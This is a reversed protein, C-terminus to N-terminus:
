LQPFCLCAKLRNKKERFTSFFNLNFAHTELGTFIIFITGNTPNQSWFFFGGGGWTWTHIRLCPTLSKDQAIRFITGPDFYYLSVFLARGIHKFFYYKLTKFTKKISFNYYKCAKWQKKPWSIIISSGYSNWKSTKYILNQM